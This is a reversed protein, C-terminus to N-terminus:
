KVTGVKALRDFILREVPEKSSISIFHAGRAHCFQKIESQYDHLAQKYAKFDSKNIKMKLNRDDLPDKAESDVLRIRGSYQPNLEDVSLVQILLVERKLYILYDVAKKWNNETLFDSIIVTLGDNSGINLANMISKEIDAYSKFETKELEAIARYYANKGVITGGIEELYDGKILRLSLRDMNHVSLYGIAAAAKLAFEAKSFDLKAMSASCDIFVQTLMQREDVFLKIYHKEFRSYLNWDIHRIDDGLVYERFDAFEVTSGYSDTRHNGGFFGRMPASMHFTLTELRSIFEDNLIKRKM